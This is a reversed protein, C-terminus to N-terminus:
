AERVSLKHHKQLIDMLAIPEDDLLEGIAMTEVSLPHREAHASTHAYARLLIDIIFSTGYSHVPNFVNPDARDSEIFDADFAAAAQAVLALMMQQIDSDLALGKPDRLERIANQVGAFFHSISDRKVGLVTSIFSLYIATNFASLYLHAAFPAAEIKPSISFAAAPKGTGFNESIFDEAWKLAWRFSCYGFEEPTLKTGNSFTFQIAM